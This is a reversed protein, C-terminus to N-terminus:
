CQRKDAPSILVTGSIGLPTQGFSQLASTDCRKKKLPFNRGMFGLVRNAKNAAAVGPRSSRLNSSIGVSLDKVRQVSTLTVGRVADDFMKNRTGVHLGQCRDVNLPM